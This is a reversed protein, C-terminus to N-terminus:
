GGEGFVTVRTWLVCGLDESRKLRIPHGLVSLPEAHRELKPPM